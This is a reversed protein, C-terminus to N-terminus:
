SARTAACSLPAVWSLPAMSSFAALTSAASASAPSPESSVGAGRSTARASYSSAKSGSAHGVGTRCRDSGRSLQTAFMGLLALSAGDSALAMAASASALRRPASAPSATACASLSAITPTLGTVGVEIDGFEVKDASFRAPDRQGLGSATFRAIKVSAPSQAGSEAVIDSITLTRSKVDFAIKGHSAKAGAARLQEFAAEVERTVRRQAYFDFGFYGAAAVLAVAILGLLIKKM